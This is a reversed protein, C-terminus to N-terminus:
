ATCSSFSAAAIRQQVNSFPQKPKHKENESFVVNPVHVLTKLTSIHEMLYGITEATCFVKGNFTYHESAMLMVPTVQAFRDCIVKKGLEPSVSSWISGISTVALMCIVTEATNPMLAVVSDSKQLGLKRLAHALRAVRDYFQGYTM